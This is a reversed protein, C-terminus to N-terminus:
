QGCRYLSGAMGAARSNGSQAFQTVPQCNTRVWQSVSSNARGGPGGTM